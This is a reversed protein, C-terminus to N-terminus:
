ASMRALRVIAATRRQGQRHSCLACHPAINGRNYRGGREGPIIRDCVLDILEVLVGCEWCPVDTGDGGWGADPSLLWLKRALRDRSSGRGDTTCTRTRPHSM